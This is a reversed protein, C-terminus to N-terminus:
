YYTQKYKGKCQYTDKFLRCFHQRGRGNRGLLGLHWSADLTMTVDSFLNDQGPYAFTMNKLKINTM